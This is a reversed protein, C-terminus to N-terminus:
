YNHRQLPRQLLLNYDNDSKKLHSLQIMLLCYDQDIQSAIVQPFSTTSGSCLLSKAITSNM